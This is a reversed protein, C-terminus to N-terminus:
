DILVAQPEANKMFPSFYSELQQLSCDFSYIWTGDECQEKSVPEPRDTYRYEYRRVGEETLHVRRIVVADINGYQIGNRVMAEYCERFNETFSVPEGTDEIHKINNLRIVTNFHRENDQQGALYNHIEDKSHTIAYPNFQRARNNVGYTYILKNGRDIIRQIREAAAKYIVLERKYIPLTLYQAFLGRLFASVDSTGTSRFIAECILDVSTSRITVSFRKKLDGSYTSGKTIMDFAAKRAIREYEKKKASFLHADMSKLLIMATQDIRDAYEQLYNIILDNLFLNMNVKGDRKVVKFREADSCLQVHMEESVYIKVVGSLVNQLEEIERCSM